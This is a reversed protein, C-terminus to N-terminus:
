GRLIRRNQDSTRVKHGNHPTDLRVTRESNPLWGKTACRLDATGDNSVSKHAGETTCRPERRDHVLGDVGEREVPASKKRSLQQIHGM